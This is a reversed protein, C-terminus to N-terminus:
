YLDNDFGPESMDVYSIIEGPQCVMLYNDMLQQNDEISDILFDDALKNTNSDSFGDQLGENSRDLDTIIDEVLMNIDNGMNDEQNASNYSALALEYSLNNMSDLQVDFAYHPHNIETQQYGNSNNIFRQYSQNGGFGNNSTRLEFNIEKNNTDDDDLGLMHILEDDSSPLGNYRTEMQNNM